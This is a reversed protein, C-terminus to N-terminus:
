SSKRAKFKTRDMKPPCQLPYNYAISNLYASAALREQWTMKSYVESHRSAEQATHANFATKDLRFKEM